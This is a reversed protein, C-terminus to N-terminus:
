YPAPLLRHSLLRVVHLALSYRSYVVTIAHLLSTARLLLATHPPLTSRILFPRANALLDSLLARCGFDDDAIGAAIKTPHTKWFSLLM